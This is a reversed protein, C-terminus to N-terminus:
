CSLHADLRSLRLFSVIKIKRRLFPVIDLMIRQHNNIIINRPVRAFIKFRRSGDEAPRHAAATQRTIVILNNLPAVPITPLLRHVSKEVCVASVFRHM